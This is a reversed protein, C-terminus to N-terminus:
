IEVDFEKAKSTEAFKRYDLKSSFQSLILDTNLLNGFRNETIYDPMSSWPYQHEKNRWGQIEKPNKHIYASLHLLQTNDSVHVAKFSGEFVHGSRKYKANFYKSYPMLVKHMYKSIGGETKEHLTLHFHNGMICFNILDVAKSNAVLSTTRRLTVFNRNKQFSEANKDPNFVKQDSQKYLLLFLFRARDTDDLFVPSHNVGRSYIHYHEGISIEINRM